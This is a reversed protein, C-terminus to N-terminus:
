TEQDPKPLDIADVEVLDEAVGALEGFKAVFRTYAARKAPSATRLKSGIKTAQRNVHAMAELLLVEPPAVPGKAKRPTGKPGGSAQQAKVQEPTAM